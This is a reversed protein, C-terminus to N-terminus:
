SRKVTVGATSAAKALRAAAAADWQVMCGVSARADATTVSLTFPADAGDSTVKVTGGRPVDIWRRPRFFGQFLGLRLGDEGVTADLMSATARRFARSVLGIRLGLVAAGIMWVMLVTSRTTWGEAVVLSVGAAISLVPMIVPMAAVYAARLAGGRTRDVQAPMLVVTAREM